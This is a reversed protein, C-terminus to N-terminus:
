PRKAGREAESALPRVDSSLTWRVSGRQARASGPSSVKRVRPQPRKAETYLAASMTAAPTRGRTDLLDEALAANTIEVATMAVSNRALVELAAEVFSVSTM